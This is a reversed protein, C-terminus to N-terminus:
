MNDRSNSVLGNAIWSFININSIANGVFFFFVAVVLLLCYSSLSLLKTQSVVRDSHDEARAEPLPKTSSMSDLPNMIWTVM